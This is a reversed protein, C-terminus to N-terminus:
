TNKFIYQLIVRELLCDQICFYQILIKVLIHNVPSENLHLYFLFYLAPTGWEVFFNLPWIFKLRWININHKVFRVFVHLYNDWVFKRIQNASVFFWQNLFYQEILKLRVSFSRAGLFTGGRKGFVLFLQGLFSNM